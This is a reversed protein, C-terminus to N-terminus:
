YYCHRWGQSYCSRIFIAIMCYSACHSSHSNVVIPM